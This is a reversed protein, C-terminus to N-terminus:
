ALATLDPDQTVYLRRMEESTALLERLTGSATLRGEQLLLIQDARELVAPRHSVVLCTAGQRLLREWLARETEVDLASSTDDMVLLEPDRVLMRAAAARQAQGGSLKMGRVGIPTDLGQPFLEVDRDLVARQVARAVTGDQEPWGLLVNERLTDSLLGPVQPTYGARPPQFFAAPDDVRAGNWWVAGADPPLLGLLARLLTTKGSGIRGAVVTLTGRRLAFSVDEIGGGMGPHRLTLGKVQLTQLRDRAQNAPSALPPLPRRLPLPHHEVLQEPSGQLLALLRTLAVRALRYAVLNGGGYVLYGNVQQLYVVFLALDGVTFAGSRMKSAAALLILGMGIAVASEFLKGWVERQLWYRLTARGRVEALRRLHAIVRDEAGAAQVAQVSVLIEGLGGSFQAAADRRQAHVRELRWKGVQALAVVLGLPIFVLLTVGVDVSLLIGLGSGFFVLETLLDLPLGNVEELEDVDDRLTSLAEGVSGPLARAGPRELIRALLNHRLLGSVRIGLSVGVATRALGLVIDVGGLLLTLLIIGGLSLGVRAEGQLLDFFAKALLMGGLGTSDWALQLVSRAASHLPRYALMRRIFFALPPVTGTARDANM